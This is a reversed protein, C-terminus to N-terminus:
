PLFAKTLVDPRTIATGVCVCHAGAKFAKRVQEPTSYRGEAIVPGGGLSALAAVLEIDPGEPPKKVGVYGSLTSGAMDAGCEFAREGEKANSVDAAVLTGLEGHIRAIFEKLDKRRLTADVAIIDAGAKAIRAAHRFTPTIYIEYSFDKYLGIIPVKVRRRVYAIVAPSNLRLGQAGAEASAVAMAGLVETACLPSDEPAQSSVVLGNKLKNLITKKDM